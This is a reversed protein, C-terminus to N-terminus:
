EVKRYFSDILSEQVILEEAGSIVEQYGPDVRMKDWIEGFLAMSECSAMWHVRFLHGSVNDLVQVDLDPYNGNVWHAVKLAWQRAARSQGQRITASRVFYIMEKSRTTAISDGQLTLGIAAREATRCFGTESPDDGV